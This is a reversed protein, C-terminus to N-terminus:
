GRKEDGAILRSGQVKTSEETRKGARKGRLADNHREVGRGAEGDCLMAKFLRRSKLM